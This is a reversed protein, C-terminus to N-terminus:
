QFFVVNGDKSSPKSSIVSVTGKANKDTKGQILFNFAQRQSQIKMGFNSSKIHPFCRKRGFMTVLFGKEEARQM